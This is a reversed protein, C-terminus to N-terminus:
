TKLKPSPMGYQIERGNWDLQKVTQDESFYRKAAETVIIADIKEAREFCNKWIVNRQEFGLKKYHLSVHVRSKFAEDFTAVRNTTLFLLGKYYELARL